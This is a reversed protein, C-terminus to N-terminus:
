SALTVRSLDQGPLKGRCGFVKFDRKNVRTIWVLILGGALMSGLLGLM